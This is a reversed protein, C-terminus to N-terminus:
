TEEGDIGNYQNWVRLSINRTWFVQLFRSSTHTTTNQKAKARVWKRATAKVKVDDFAM